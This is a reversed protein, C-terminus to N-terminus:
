PLGSRRRGRILKAAMQVPDAKPDGAARAAKQEERYALLENVRAISGPAGANPLDGGQSRIQGALFEEPGGRAAGIEGARSGLGFRTVAISARMDKDIAVM